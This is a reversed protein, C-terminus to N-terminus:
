VTRTGASRRAVPLTSAGYFLENQRPTTNLVLTRDPRVHVEYSLNRPNAFSFSMDFGARGGSPGYLETPRLTMTNRRVDIVADSM